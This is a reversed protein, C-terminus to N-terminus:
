EGLTHTEVTLASAAEVEDTSVLVLGGTDERLDLDNNAAVVGRRGLMTGSDGCSDQIVGSQALLPEVLKNGNAAAHIFHSSSEATCDLLLTDWTVPRVDGSLNAHEGERSESNFLTLSHDLFMADVHGLISTDGDATDGGLIDVVNGLADLVNNRIVSLAM